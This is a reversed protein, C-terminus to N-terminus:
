KMHDLSDLIYIADTWKDNVPKIVSPIKLLSAATANAGDNSDIDDVSDDAANWKVSGTRWLFEDNRNVVNDVCM